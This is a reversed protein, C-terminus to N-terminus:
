VIECQPYFRYCVSDAIGTVIPMMRRLDSVQLFYDNYSMDQKILSGQLGDVMEPSILQIPNNGDGGTGRDINGSYLIKSLIVESQSKSLLNKMISSSSYCEDMWLKSVASAQPHNLNWLMADNNNSYANPNREMTLIESMSTAIMKNYKILSRIDYDLQVIMASSDLFMVLDYSQLNQLKTNCSTDNSVLIDSSAPSPSVAGGAEIGTGACGTDNLKANETKAKILKDLLYPKNFTAKWSSSGGLAIGTFQLYDFGWRAAYARNVRSTVYLVEEDPGPAADQVILVKPDKGYNHSSPSKNNPDSGDSNQDNSPNPSLDDNTQRKNSPTQYYSLHNHDWRWIFQDNTYKIIPEDGETISTKRKQRNSSLSSPRLRNPKHISPSSQSSGHSGEKEDHGTTMTIAHSGFYLCLLFKKVSLM